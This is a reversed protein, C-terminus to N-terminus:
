KKIQEDLREVIGVLVDAGREELLEEFGDRSDVESM